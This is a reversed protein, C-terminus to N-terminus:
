GSYPKYNQRPRGEGNRVREYKDFECLCNQWDQMCMTQRLRKPLKEVTARKIQKLKMAWADASLRTDTPSGYVRNLGRRSGPGPVAWTYWDAAEWLPNGKTNKMDAVVQAALFGAGLGDVMRLRNWFSQLTDGKEPRIDHMAVEHCVNDLVYTAKDMKKGCTTVVYASSWVKEGLQAKGHMIGLVKGRYANDWWLPFGIAKLTPPWNIMRALVMATTLNVHKRHPDRWHKKLWKTVRDDERRVNCFRYKQLIKDSTWPQPCGDEKMIRLRERAQIFLALENARM